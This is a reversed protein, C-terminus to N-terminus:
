EWEDQPLSHAQMQQLLPDVESAEDTYVANLRETITATDHMEVFHAVATAYLESRSMSLHRALKEASDFIPDPISIATKM